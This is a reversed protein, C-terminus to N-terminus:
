LLPMKTKKVTEINEKILDAFMKRDDPSLDYANRYSLGGRMYWCIKMLEFRLQKQREELKKFYDEMESPTLTM